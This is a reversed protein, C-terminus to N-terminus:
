SLVIVQKCMNMKEKAIRQAVKYKEAKWKAVKEREQAKELSAHAEKEGVTALM